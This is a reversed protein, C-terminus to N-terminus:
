GTLDQFTPCTYMSSSSPVKNIPIFIAEGGADIPNFFLLEMVSNRMFWRQCGLIRKCITKVRKRICNGGKICETAWPSRVDLCSSGDNLEM